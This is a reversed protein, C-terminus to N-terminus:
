VVIHGRLSHLSIPRGGELSPLTFDSAPSNQVEAAAQYNAISIQGLVTTGRHRYETIGFGGVGIGVGLLILNSAFRKGQALNVACFAGSRQENRPLGPHIGLRHYNGAAPYYIGPLVLAQEM